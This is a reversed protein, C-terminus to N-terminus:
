SASGTGTTNHPNAFTFPALKKLSCCEAEAGGQSSLGFAPNDLKPSDRTIFEFKSQALDIRSRIASTAKAEPPRAM